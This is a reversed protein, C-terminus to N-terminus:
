SCALRATPWPFERTTVWTGLSLVLEVKQIKFSQHDLTGKSDEHHRAHVQLDKCLPSWPISSRERTRVPRSSAQAQSVVDAKATQLWVTQMFPLFSSDMSVQHSALLIPHCLECACRQLYMCPLSIQMPAFCLSNSEGTVCIM